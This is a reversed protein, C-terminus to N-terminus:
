NEKNDFVKISQYVIFGRDRYIPTCNGFLTACYAQASKGGHQKRMVFILSGNTKLAQHAEQFLRYLVKKGVRIPPNTIISDFNGSVGDQVINTGNVDYKRYNINALEVARANVDVGTMEVEFNRDLVVGIVGIGCGLDCVSGKIDLDMCSELLTETGIDLHDKSFVGDDTLLTYDIGLFRFSIERRNQKLNTNDTFYHSM